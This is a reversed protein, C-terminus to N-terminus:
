IRLSAKKQMETDGGHGKAHSAEEPTKGAATGSVLWLSPPSCPKSAAPSVAPMVPPPGTAKEKVRRNGERQLPETEGLLVRWGKPHPSGLPRLALNKFAKRGAGRQERHTGETQIDRPSQIAQTPGGTSHWLGHRQERVEQPCHPHQSRRNRPKTETKNRITKEGMMKFDSNQKSKYITNEWFVVYFCDM